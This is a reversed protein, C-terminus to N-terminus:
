VVVTGGAKLNQERAVLFATVDVGQTGLEKLFRLREDNRQKEGQVEQEVAQQKLKLEHAHQLEGIEAAHKQKFEEIEHQKMSRDMESELRLDELHQAQKAAELETQLGKREKAARQHMAELEASMTFGTFVVDRVAFGVRQAAQLVSPYNECGSLRHTSARLEECSHARVTDGVVSRLSLQIEQLPDEAATLMQEIDVLQLSLEFGLQLELEDKTRTREVSVCHQRSALSLKAAASPAQPQSTGHYQQNYAYMGGYPCPQVPQQQDASSPQQWAFEQVREGADPFYLMPGRVIRRSERSAEIKDIPIAHQIGETAKKSTPSAPSTVQNFVVIAQREDLSIAPLIAISAHEVPNLFITCPGRLHSTDGNRRDIRLYENAKATYRDLFRVDSNVICIRKPGEELRCAGSYNWIAACEGEKVRRKGIYVSKGYESGRFDKKSNRCGMTCYNATAGM